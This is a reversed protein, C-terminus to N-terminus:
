TRPSWYNHSVPELACAWYNHHVPKIAGRCTPDEQVLAQVQTGQMPLHIRLWQAVLSAGIKSSKKLIKQEHNFVPCFVQISMKKLSSICIALLSMFLHEVDSIMLSICILVVILYWRVGTLIAITLFVVFLLHQCPHPSFPVKTCQQHSHLSTCGSQFVNHLNRLSSLMSYGYSRAIGSNPIYRFFVFVSIWFSVHVGTNMAANNVIALIHFCDLHGDVSSHIFFIHYIYM